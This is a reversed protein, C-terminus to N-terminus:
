PLCGQAIIANVRSTFEPSAIFQRRMADRTMTAFDLQHIWAQVGALDGGRRLFANYLDSVYQANTRGRGAYEGSTAFQGSISEVESYVATAGSCQAARFRGLWYNFGATDPLRAFFGRYFDTVTNIEARVGTNGFIGQTFAGFEASFMFSDLVVDRPMGSAIQGVWYALGGADPARNFFTTYLDTVYETGTRNFAAYEPSAFFNMAMSFWTENVNAGLSQMRVAEGDWFAKGGADPDRRLVSRYYHSVLSKEGVGVLAVTAAGVDSTITLTGALAGQATPTFTVNAACSAAPALVACNHTVAFNTTAAITSVTVPVAGPNTVTVVRAPSTTNISQGGFNLASPAIELSAFKVVETRAGSGNHMHTLLLGRSGNALYNAENFVIPIATAPVDLYFFPDASGGQADLGPKAMDYHLLGTEDVIAGTERDFTVVDYFLKTPLGAGAMGIDTGLVPITVVSNNYSNTDITAPSLGNTRFRTVGGSTALNVVVPVYVNSSATGNAVSSLYIAYAFTAGGDLSIYIEKDSSPFSPMSANGFGELLFTLVTNQPSAGRELYDSTVGVYKIVNPDTPPSAAAAQASVYQLEFPKVLGTIDTPYNTGTNVPTGALALSFNVPGGTLAGAQMTAVPKPAAYLAVRLTPETGATPTLVAYGTKETLWQRSSPLSLPVSAERVHKLLNGTADFRVPITVTGGGPVTVPSGSGVTFATGALPTADAYTVNYTVSAAGNNKVAISKTISATGSVPVEVIGFSVNVLGRDTQNYAVVSAHSAKAIDIRGAGVRGVGYQAGAGTAPGVFEDHTATNMALAMLEEVTWTPHMQRLLAMTGAVHPTASSTGNFGEVQNGTLSTAVGVVEAPASLDPKIASDGLRPGRSSYTPMTDAATSAVSVFGNDNNLTVNVGVGLQAKILAGDNLGIMVAPITSTPPGALSMVIPNPTGSGGASQVVMVAIAGADQCLRVKNAFGIVGRDIMCVKGPMAAANLLPSVGDASGTPPNAYVIDATLGPAGVPANPSGYIANFKQGALAPPSNMTSNANFFFGGTDNFTAAVSLTGSGVSPSSVIYYSDGANGAASAVIVGAAAANSAAISDPDSAYGSNAGLSMSIVDMHDAINGDGNPDVAWDIAQTVLNTSGSVGFVRLPYLQAKPAFGPSIKLSGITTANDYVGVFTSGDAAVGLGGILSACATGHGNSSDLPNRDPHPIDQIGASYTDGAFDYGGPVKFSPFYANPVPGADTIAAYAAPTGPGGFNTHLYDLGSDIIAVKINEGRIGFPADATTKTWASRGGLFDIDTAATQFKPVQVHVAKVGPLSALAPISGRTALLSVGNYASKTRFLVSGGQAMATLRPLLAQQAAELRAVQAKAVGVAASRAADQEVRSLAAFNGGSQAVQAKLSDAYTLAAPQDVLEVMVTVVERFYAPMADPLASAPAAEVPLAAESVVQVALGVSSSGLLVLACLASTLVSGISSTAGLVRRVIASLALSM